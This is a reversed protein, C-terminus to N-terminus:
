HLSRSVTAPQNAQKQVLFCYILVTGVLGFLMRMCVGYLHPLYSLAYQVLGEFLTMMAVILLALLLQQGDTQTRFKGEGIQEELGVALLLYLLAHLGLPNQTLVDEWLGLCWPFSYSVSGQSIFWYDVFVVWLFWPLQVDGGMIIGLRLQFFTGMLVLLTRGVLTQMTTSM